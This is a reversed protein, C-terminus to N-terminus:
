VKCLVTLSDEINIRLTTSHPLYYFLIVVNIEDIFVSLYVSTVSSLSPQQGERDSGLRELLRNQGPSVLEKVEITNLIRACNKIM